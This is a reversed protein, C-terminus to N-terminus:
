LQLELVKAVKLIICLASENSFARISPFISPLLLLLYCLILHNSPMVAETTMFKPLSQSITISLSAQHAATWPTPFLQVHSPWQVVVVKLRLPLCDAQCHLAPSVTEIGPHPFDGLPPFPLWELIRAQSIGHVSSVLPSYGMPDCFTLCLQAHMCACCGQFARWPKFDEWAKPISPTHTPTPEVPDAGLSWASTGPFTPRSGASWKASWLLGRVSSVEVM